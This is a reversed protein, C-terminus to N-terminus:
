RTDGRPRKSVKRVLSDRPRTRAMPTVVWRRAPFCPVAAGSIDTFAYLEPVFPYILNDENSGADEQNEARATSRPSSGRLAQKTLTLTSGKQHESTRPPDM